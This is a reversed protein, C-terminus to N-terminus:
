AYQWVRERINDHHEYHLWAFHPLYLIRTWLSPQIHPFTVGPLRIHDHEARARLRHALLLGNASAPLLLAIPGAAVCVAALFVAYLTVSRWSALLRMLDLAEDSHFWLADAVVDSARLRVRWRRHYKTVVEREPDGRQGLRDHHIAHTRRYVRHDIALPVFCAWMMWRPLLGHMAWHGIIGLAHLRTGIILTAPFWAWAGILAAAWLTLAILLYEAGIRAPWTMTCSFM